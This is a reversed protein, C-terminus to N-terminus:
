NEDFLAIFLGLLWILAVLFMWPVYYFCYLFRIHPVLVTLLCMPFMVDTATRSLAVTNSIVFFLTNRFLLRHVIVTM